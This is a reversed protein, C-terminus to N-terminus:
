SAQELESIREEHDNVAPVLRSMSEAIREVFMGLNNHAEGLTQLNHAVTVVMQQNDRSIQQTDKVFSALLEMSHTLGEMRETLRDIREDSTMNSSYAYGSHM